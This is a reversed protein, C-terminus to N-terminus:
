ERLEGANRETGPPRRGGRERFLAVQANSAIKRVGLPHAARIRCPPNALRGHGLVYRLDASHLATRPRVRRDHWPRGVVPSRIQSRHVCAAMGSRTWGKSRARETNRLPHKSVNTYCNLTDCWIKSPAQTAAAHGIAALANHRCPTYNVLIQPSAIRLTQHDKTM